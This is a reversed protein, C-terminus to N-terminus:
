SAPGTRVAKALIAQIRAAQEPYKELADGWEGLDDRTMDSTAYKHGVGAKRLGFASLAIGGISGILGLYGPMESTADVAKNAADVKPDNPDCGVAGLCLLLGAISLIRRM